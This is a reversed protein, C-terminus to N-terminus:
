KTQKQGKSCDLTKRTREGLHNGVPKKFHKGQELGGQVEWRVKQLSVSCWQRQTVGSQWQNEKGDAIGDGAPDRDAIGDGPRLDGAMNEMSYVDPIWLDEEEELLSIVMPKPATLSALSVVNEYTELMVNRYLVRQAPDLLVWEERSFYVAVDAFTVPEQ